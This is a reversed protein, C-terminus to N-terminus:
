LHTVSPLKFFWTDEIVSLPNRSLVRFHGLLGHSRPTCSPLPPLPETSRTHPLAQSSPELGPCISVPQNAVCM